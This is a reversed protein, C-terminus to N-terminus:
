NVYINSQMYKVYEDFNDRTPNEDYRNKLKLFKKPKINNMTINFESERQGIYKKYDEIFLDNSVIYWLFYQNATANRVIRDKTIWPKAKTFDIFNLTDNVCEDIITKKLKEDVNEDAMAKNVREIIDIEKLIKIEERNVLFEFDFSMEDSIHQAANGYKDRMYWSPLLIPYESKKDNLYLIHEDRYLMCFNNTKFIVLMEPTTPHVFAGNIVAIDLYEAPFAYMPRFGLENEYMDCTLGPKIATRWDYPQFSCFIM